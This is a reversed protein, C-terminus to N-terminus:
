NKKSLPNKLWKLSDKMVQEHPIFNSEDESEKVSSEFDAKQEDSLEDWWDKDSNELNQKLLIFYEYLKEIEQEDEIDDIQQHFSSKIELHTM